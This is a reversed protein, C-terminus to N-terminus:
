AQTSKHLSNPAQPTPRAHRDSSCTLSFQLTCSAFEGVGQLRGQRGWVPIGPYNSMCFRFICLFDPPSNEPLRPAAAPGAPDAGPKEFFGPFVQPFTASNRPKSRTTPSAGAPSKKLCSMFYTTTYPFFVPPTPRTRPHPKARPHRFSGLNKQPPGFFGPAVDPFQAARQPAGLLDPASINQHM